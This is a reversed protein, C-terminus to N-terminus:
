RFARQRSAQVATDYGYAPQQSFLSQSSLIYKGGPQYTLYVGDKLFTPM